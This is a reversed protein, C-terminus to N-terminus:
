FKHSAGYSAGLILELWVTGETRPGYINNYLPHNLNLWKGRDDDYYKLQRFDSHKRLENHKAGERWEKEEACRAANALIVQPSKGAHYAVITQLQLKSQMFSNKALILNLHMVVRHSPHEMLQQLQQSRPWILLNTDM